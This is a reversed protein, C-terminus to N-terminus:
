AKFEGRYVALWNDPRYAEGDDGVVHAELAAAMAVMKGVQAESPRACRIEARYWWFCPSGNWLILYYRTVARGRGDSMDVWDDASWGLEPDAAVLADVQAETIPDSAADLWNPTRVIHVDYAM